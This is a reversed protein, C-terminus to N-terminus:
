RRIMGTQIGWLIMAPADCPYFVCDACVQGPNRGHCTPFRAPQESPRAPNEITPETITRTETIM